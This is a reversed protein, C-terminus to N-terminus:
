GGGVQGDIFNLLEEDSAAEIQDVDLVRVSGSGDSELGAALSRLRVALKARRPDESPVAALAQELGSLAPGIAEAGEGKVEGFLYDALAAANPYDFVLPPPLRLGTLTGLRNRLEVAALSDFGLEQFARDPEIAAGSDHGLVAAVEAKVLELM